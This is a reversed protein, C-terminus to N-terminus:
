GREKQEATGFEALIEINGTDPAQCNFVRSAIQSRGMHECLVSYDHNSVGPGWEPDPLFLNWLGLSKAEARLKKMIPPDDGNAVSHAQEAYTREAPIIKENMFRVVQEEILRGDESITFEMPVGKNAREHIPDFTDRPRTRCFLRIWQYSYAAVTSTCERWVREGGRGGGRAHAPREDGRRVGVFWRAGFGARSVAAIGRLRRPLQDARRQAPDTRELPLLGRGHRHSGRDDARRVAGDADAVCRVARRAIRSRPHLNPAAAAVGRLRCGGLDRGLVIRKGVRPDYEAIRDLWRRHISYAEAGAFGGARFYEAQRDFAPMPVDVVRAGADILTALAADFAKAVAPDLDDLVSSRPLMLRLGRADLPTLAADPETALVADFAACDGVSRCLPGVSDLTYSLPFAGDRPVRRATPKFGTVGCLAAPVRVSGRTDSGLAMVCMDDAVAVAAGSSSGGPVRGTTRDFPNKPTGYHPNAGVVGFAFEVMNTRGVIIAGAARLRAVAPADSVAPAADALIKSGARTVDGGVDFLDKVSVPLGEIPSRVIGARRLRDSHDAEARATEAYVKVFARAGEGAPDAIRALAQEVLERSTM